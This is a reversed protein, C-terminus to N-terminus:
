GGRKENRQILGQWQDGSSHFDTCIVHLIVQAQPLHYHVQLSNCALKQVVLQQWPIQSSSSHDVMDFAKSFDLCKTIM